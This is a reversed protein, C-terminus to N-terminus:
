PFSEVVKVVETIPLEAELNIALRGKQGYLVHVLRSDGEARKGYWWHQGGITLSERAVLGALDIGPDALQSEDLRLMTGRDGHFVLEVHVIKGSRTDSRLTLGVLRVGDPLYAPILVDEAGQYSSPSRLGTATTLRASRYQFPVALDAAEVVPVPSISDPAQARRHGGGPAPGLGRIAVLGVLCFLTLLAM